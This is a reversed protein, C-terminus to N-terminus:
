RTAGHGSAPSASSTLADKQCLYHIYFRAPHHSCLRAYSLVRPRRFDMRSEGLLGYFDPSEFCISCATDPPEEAAVTSDTVSAHLLGVQQRHPFACDNARTCFGSPVLSSRLHTESSKPYTDLHDCLRVREGSSASRYRGSSRRPRRPLHLARRAAVPRVISESASGIRRPALMSVLTPHDSQDPLRQLSCM